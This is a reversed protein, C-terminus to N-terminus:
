ICAALKRYQGVCGLNSCSSFALKNLLVFCGCFLHIIRFVRLWSETSVWLLWTLANYQIGAQYYINNFHGIKNCM